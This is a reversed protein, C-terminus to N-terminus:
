TTINTSLKLVNDITISVKTGNRSYGTEASLLLDEELPCKFIKNKQIAYSVFDFNLAKSFRYLEELNYYPFSRDPVRHSLETVLRKYAVEDM